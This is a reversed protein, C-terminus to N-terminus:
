IAKARIESPAAGYRRKFKRNFHSLDGFSAEYAIASITWAAYPVQTLMQYARKLRQDLAHDTFTTEETEFLLQVYRPTVRRRLALAGLTLSPDSALDDKIAKLRAARVGRHLAVARGDRTPGLAMAILDHVHTAAATTRCDQLRARQRGIEQLPLLSAVKRVIAM